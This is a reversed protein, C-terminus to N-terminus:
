RLRASRPPRQPDFGGCSNGWGRDSMSFVAYGRSAWEKARGTPNGDGDVGHKTFGWGHFWGIAPFPGDGASAPPFIVNVDINTAGDFTETVGQCVRIGDAKTACAEPTEGDKFVSDINAQAVPAFAFAALAGMIM